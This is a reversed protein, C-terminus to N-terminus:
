VLYFLIIFLFQLKGRNIKIATEAVACSIKIFLSVTTLLSQDISGEVMRCKPLKFAMDASLTCDFTSDNITYHALPNNFGGDYAIGLISIPLIETGAPITAAPLFHKSKSFLCWIWNNRIGISTSLWAGSETRHRDTSLSVIEISGTNYTANEM